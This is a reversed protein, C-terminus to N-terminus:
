AVILLFILAASMPDPLIPVSRMNLANRLL